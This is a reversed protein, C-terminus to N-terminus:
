AAVIQCQAIADALASISAFTKRNLMTDEFEVDFAEEAALMVQVTSFSTLGANYLNDNDAIEAAPTALKGVQDLIERIKDKMDMGWARKASIHEDVWPATLLPQALLGSHQM